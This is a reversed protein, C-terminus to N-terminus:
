LRYSGHFSIDSNTTEEDHRRKIKVSEHVPRAAVAHKCTHTVRGRLFTVSDRVLREQCNHRSTPTKAQIDLNL